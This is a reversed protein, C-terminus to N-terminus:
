KQFMEWAVAYWIREWDKGYKVKFKKKNNRLWREMAGSAAENQVPQYKEIVKYLTDFNVGSKEAVSTVLEFRDTSPDSNIASKCFAIASTLAKGSELGSLAQKMKPTLYRENIIQELESIADNVINKSM